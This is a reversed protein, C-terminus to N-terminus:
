VCSYGNCLNSLPAGSIVIQWDSLSSYICILDLLLAVNNGLFNSTHALIFAGVNNMDGATVSVTGGQCQLACFFVQQVNDVTATDWPPFAGAFASTSLGSLPSRINKFVTLIWPAIKEALVLGELFAGLSDLIISVAAGGAASIAANIWGRWTEYLQQLHSAMALAAGCRAAVCPDTGDGLPDPESPVSVPPTPTASPTNPCFAPLGTGPDQGVLVAPTTGLTAFPTELVLVGRNYVRFPGGSHSWRTSGEAGQLRIAAADPGDMDILAMSVGDGTPHVFLITNSGEHLTALFSFDAYDGSPLAFLALPSGSVWVGLTAEDPTDPSLCRAAKFPIWVSVDTALTVVQGCTGGQQLFAVQQGYPASPNDALLGAGNRGIGARSGLGHAQFTWASGAPTWPAGPVGAPAEATAGDPPVYFEFSSDQLVSM